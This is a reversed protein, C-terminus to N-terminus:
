DRNGDGLDYLITLVRCLMAVLQKAGFVNGQVRLGAFFGDTATRKVIARKREPDPSWEFVSPPVQVWM